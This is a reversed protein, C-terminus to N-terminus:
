FVTRTNSNDTEGRQQGMHAWLIATLDSLTPEWGESETSEVVEFAGNEEEESAQKEQVGTM